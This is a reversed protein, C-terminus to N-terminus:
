NMVPRFSTMIEELVKLLADDLDKSDQHYASFQIGWGSVVTEAILYGGNSDELSYVYFPIDYDSVTLTDLLKINQDTFADLTANVYKQRDEAPATFLTLDEFEELYEMCVDVVVDEQPQYLMFLWVYQDTNESLYTRNDFQYLNEDYTITFIGNANYEEACALGAATLLLLALLLSLLKKMTRM